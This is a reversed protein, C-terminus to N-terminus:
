LRATNGRTDPELVAIISFAAGAAAAGHQAIARALEEITDSGTLAQVLPALAVGSPSSRPPSTGGHGRSEDRRRWDRLHLACIDALELLLGRDSPSFDHAQAWSISM